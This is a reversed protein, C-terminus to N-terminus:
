FRNQKDTTPRPSPQDRQWSGGSLQVQAPVWCLILLLHYGRHGMAATPVRAEGQGGAAEGALRGM